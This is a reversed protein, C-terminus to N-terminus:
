YIPMGHSGGRGLNHSPDFELDLSNPEPNLFTWTSDQFDGYIKGYQASLVRGDKDLVTSVRVLYNKHLADYSDYINTDLSRAQQPIPHWGVHKFLQPRYGNTPAMQSSRLESGEWGLKGPVDFEQIGDGPNPFSIMLKQEWGTNNKSGANTSPSDPDYDVHWTFLMHANQGKGYPAVFDGSALDFGIPKDFAPIKLHAIDVENMFMPIPNIIRKLIITQMPNWKGALYNRGLQYRMRSSYYGAKVAEFTLGEAGDLHSATSVGNTDSLVVIANTPTYYVRTEVRAVPLGSDDVVKLTAKWEHKPAEFQAFADM